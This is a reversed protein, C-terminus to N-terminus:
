SVVDFALNGSANRTVQVRLQQPGAAAFTICSSDVNLPLDLTRTCLTDSDPTDGDNECASAAPGQLQFSYILTGPNASGCHIEGNKPLRIQITQRAGASQISLANAASQLQRAALQIQSVGYVDNLATEGFAVNPFIVANLYVIAIVVIMMFEISLQGRRNLCNTADM